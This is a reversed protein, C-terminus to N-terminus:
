NATYEFVDFTKGSAMNKFTGGIFEAIAYYCSTGVGGNFSMYDDRLYVGYPHEKTAGIEHLRYKMLSNFIDAIVTSEKDYGCGSCSFDDTHGCTGDQYIVQASAHPNAGWTRSQKWEITITFSKVPKQSKEAEIIAIKKAQKRSEKRAEKRATKEETSLKIYM